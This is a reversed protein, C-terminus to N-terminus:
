QRVIQLHAWKIVKFESRETRTNEHKNFILELLQADKDFYLLWPSVLRDTLTIALHNISEPPGDINSAKFEIKFAHEFKQYIDINQIEWGAGLERQIDEATREANIKKDQDETVITLYITYFESM